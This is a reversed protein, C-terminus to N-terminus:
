VLHKVSSSTSTATSTSSVSSVPSVALSLKMASDRRFAERVSRDHCKKRWRLASIVTVHILYALCLAFSIVTSILCHSMSDADNQIPATMFEYSFFWILIFLGCCTHVTLTRHIIMIAYINYCSSLTGFIGTVVLSLTPFVRMAFHVADHPLSTRIFQTDYYYKSCMALTVM